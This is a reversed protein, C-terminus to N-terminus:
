GGSGYEKCPHSNKRCPPSEDNVHSFRDGESSGIAFTKPFGSFGFPTSPLVQECFVLVKIGDAIGHAKRMECFSLSKFM